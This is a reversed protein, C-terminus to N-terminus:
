QKSKIQQILGTLMKGITEQQGIAKHYEDVRLYGFDKSMELLVEMEISSGRAMSLFRILEKGGEVKGYGEAINLPISAAARKIQSTLGYLEEKPFSKAIEYVWKAQEYSKKFVLLDKYSQM